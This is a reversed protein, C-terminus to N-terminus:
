GQVEYANSRHKPVFEFDDRVPGLLLESIKIWDDVIPSAMLTELENRGCFPVPRWNMQVHVGKPLTEILGIPIYRHLFSLWELLYRRTQEVGLEDSGWHELGYNVYKKLIDLRESSSIDWNRKEKIETFLWPKILAGRAIMSGAPYNGVSSNDDDDSVGCSKRAAELKEYYDEFTYADGNQFFPLSSQHCKISCENLYEYDALKHYRQQRTRGHVTLASIGCSALRPILNSTIRKEQSYGTRTKMTIPVSSVGVMGRLCEVIRNPKLLMGSGGGFSCIADLPCGANLDIFDVSCTDSILETCRMLEETSNGCIQVGFFNESEHRRLLAWESPQGELISRAMAMEGCTIDAGFDKCIRRFPLNGVTTLPALYLKDQFMLLSHKKHPQFNLYELNGELDFPTPPDRQVRQKESESNQGQEQSRINKADQLVNLRFWKM